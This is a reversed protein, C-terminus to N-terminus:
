SDCERRAAIIELAEGAASPVRVALGKADGELAVDAEFVDVRCRAPEPTPGVSWEIGDAGDLEREFGLEDVVTVRTTEWTGGSRVRVRSTYPPVPSEGIVGNVRLDGPPRAIYATCRCPTTFGDGGHCREAHPEHGCVCRSM